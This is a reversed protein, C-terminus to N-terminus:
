PVTIGRHEIFAGLVCLISVITLCCLVSEHFDTVAVQQCGM